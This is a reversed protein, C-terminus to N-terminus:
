RPDPPAAGAREPPVEKIGKRLRWGPNSGRGAYAGRFTFAGKPSGNFDLDYATDGALPATDLPAGSCVTCGVTPFFDMQALSESPASVYRAAEAASGVVNARSTSILGGLRNGRTLILNGTVLGEQRARTVFEIGGGETSYVTNNYVRAVKLPGNHDTLAIAVQDAGSAVFVNDHISMRGSAQLLSEDPNKYFFNGYIEYLDASGPGSEPFPDVLLNPRAGAEVGQPWRNKEKIFVNNRIVTRHPGPPLESAWSEGGYPLQHKIEMNYGISNLILNDEIIGEVFPQRGDSNGLYLGTGAELIMNGRVTWRWAPSKTSIGITGQGSGQGVLLCDEIRIDHTPQSKANIGDIADIGASDIILRQLAVYETGGLQVTNCCTSETTITAPEGSAPGTVVIWADPAGKVGSLDLRDRYTGGQLLLTDGPTLARVLLGYYGPRDPRAGPDAVLLRASVQSPFLPNLASGLFAAVLVMRIM